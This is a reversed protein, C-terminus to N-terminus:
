VFPKYLLPFLNLSLCYFSSLLDFCFFFISISHAFACSGANLILSQNNTLSKGVVSKSYCLNNNINVTKIM